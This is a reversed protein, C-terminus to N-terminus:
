VDFEVLDEGWYLSQLLLLCGRSSVQNEALCVSGNETEVVDFHNIDRFRHLVTSQPGPLTSALHQNLLDRVSWFPRRLDELILWTAQWSEEM